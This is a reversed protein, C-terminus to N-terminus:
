VQEILVFDIEAVLHNRDEVFGLQPQRGFSIRLRSSQQRRIGNPGLRGLHPRAQLFLKGMAM